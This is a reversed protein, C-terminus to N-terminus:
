FSTPVPLNLALISTFSFSLSTIDFLHCNDVPPKPCFPPLVTASDDVHKFYDKECPNSPIQM